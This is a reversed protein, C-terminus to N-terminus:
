NDGYRNDLNFSVLSEPDKECVFALNDECNTDDFLASRFMGGCKQPSGGHHFTPQNRAWKEYGAEKLSQGHLTGFYNSEDNWNYFGLRIADHYSVALSEAPYKAFLGRLVEAETDNNIIALHAGEASCVEASVWYPRGIHHFKYCKNTRKDLKYETDITGCETIRMDKSHKKYCIFPFPRSCDVDAAQGNAHYIICYENDGANNPDGALWQLSIESIPIGDISHFDGKSVTGPIGTYVGNKKNTALEKMVTALGYNTSFSCQRGYAMGLLSAKISGNAIHSAILFVMLKRLSTLDAGFQNDLNFSVLSEADKECVFALTDECNTDDFLASRFMGGCKQPSGGHHFTPQNRAWKEYGAEKLSQGHLTGFYNSEDNWNYFGLRIADHYSVALSEAPYKAFLGRLVEAETDNNIIALHAGEASCVEASVWYPRGIHHFKYCKNTRKDLKYETDITGCETIRMDKSHKKYCIFPFPRSCDVDAAQGNAHYIICYENNGANNPDGALWQLSIESIPIGDISHFDGKSVTGPIGTYVGNKKNTALEKM